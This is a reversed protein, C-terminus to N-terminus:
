PNIFSVAIYRTGQTTTLGEHFHTLRGPFIMSHGVESELTCNYRIFRVGGGEFDVGQKNLAVDITYTSSDHHPKLYAQEEPKYRVVFMMFSEVPKHYYGIFLKEQIPRVYEDLIYLWHRELDIQKMHIDRTPVNEYGSILREDEHKGSSWKGFNECEEILEACFTESMFPFDYVDQCREPIEHSDNLAAFYDPHIYRKEWLERNNFIEYMEPHLKSLQMNDSVVLFGHQHVNTVYLFHGNRRAFLCFSMDPDLNSDYYYANQLPTLKEKSIIVVSSIYPVNWIGKIKGDVIDLYDESRAYYGNGSIAGWFNTFFSNPQRVLPALVGINKQKMTDVLLLLSESNNLHVDGDIMVLYESNKIISQELSFVRAEREGIVSLGDYRVSNYRIKAREIFHAVEKEMFNQNCYIYLDIKNDLYVLNEINKFFERIFPIPKAIIISIYLKPLNNEEIDQVSWSSMKTSTIELTKMNLPDIYNALRNLHLKSLGNGHIVIPHTNYIINHISYVGSDNDLELTVDESVGHLNQFLVGTSDLTMQLSNRIQKDLYLRTYYLQDDDDDEVNEYNLLKWIEPAYGMFVGSNLYRYGFNVIPYSPALSKQPWCFTEASFVVRFEEFFTLFKGLIEEENGLLITDYGDVFLIVIDDQDKYKDLSKRLIRVKQGGGMEKTVDGGRWEEGLGFVELKMDKAEVTRALRKLGDTEETAVTVVTLKPIVQGAVALQRLLACFIVMWRLM